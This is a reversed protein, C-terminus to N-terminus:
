KGTTAHTEFRRLLADLAAKFEPGQARARVALADREGSALRQARAKEASVRAVELSSAYAQDAQQRAQELLQNAQREADRLVQVAQKQADAKLDRVEAEAKKVERLAEAYQM